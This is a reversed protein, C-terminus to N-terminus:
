GNRTGAKVKAMLKLVKFKCPDSFEFKFVAFRAFRGLRRWVQRLEFEGVGGVYATIPDSFKKTDPSYSMRVEPDAQDDNGVGSDMVLELSPVSFSSGNNFMTVTTFRRVIASDYETYINPSLEGIRGDQSDGCLIRGYATVLSNARWRISETLGKSNVVQSRRQHWKNSILDFVLSVGAFSFGVFFAGNQAYSWAFADAIEDDSFQQLQNDIGTTSVKQASSGSLQWIAARENVGGGIWMFTDGINIISFKAFVGKPIVFGNIRQFPFGGTGLNQFAEITESGAIFLRNKNVIPAVITDPDAEASGFDLANWALGDKPDSKIFKKTDTTVVFFSDVFEVLQPNGNAKFDTDTIKQFVTGAAENIIYGDVGPILVMLQSGNDAFSCRGTGPITGLAVNTFLENGDEDISLDVRYLTQGNLFYPKGNKVHAGRNKQRIVGTTSRQLLGPTGYIEAETFTNAQPVNIYCNINIPSSSPLSDSQYEGDLPIPIM